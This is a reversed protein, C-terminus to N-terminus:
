SFRDREVGVSEDTHVIPFGATIDLVDDVRAPALQGVGIKILEGIELAVLLIKKIEETETEGFDVIGLVNGM